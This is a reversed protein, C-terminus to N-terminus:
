KNNQKFFSTPKPFNNIGLERLVEQIEPDDLFKNFNNISDKMILITKALDKNVPELNKVLQNTKGAYIFKLVGAIANTLVGENISNNKQKKNKKILSLLSINKM